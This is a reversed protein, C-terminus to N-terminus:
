SENRILQAYATLTLFDVFVEHLAVKEFVERADRYVARGAARGCRPSSGSSTPDSSADTTSGSGSRRARSRATAADEMLNDIAAAGRGAAVGRHLPHRGLRQGARGGRHDRRAHRVDLLDAAQTTVDERLRELQNPREGLVADFEAMAVLVLDPHAVWSGDFGDERSM